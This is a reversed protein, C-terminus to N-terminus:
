ALRTAKAMLEGYHEKPIHVLSTVGYSKVLDAVQTGLGAKRKDQLVARIEEIKIEVEGGGPAWDAPNKEDVKTVSKEEVTEEVAEQVAKVLDCEEKWASIRHLNVLLDEAEKGEAEIVIKM